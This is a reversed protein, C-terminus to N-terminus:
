RFLSVYGSKVKQQNQGEELCSYQLVWYYVGEPLSRTNRAGDWGNALTESVFVSQGHRDFVELSYRSPPAILRPIFVDNIGDGNPSFVNPVESDCSCIIEDVVFTERFEYCFSQVDVYYTGSSTVEYIRESQLDQWVYSLGEFSPTLILAADDCKELLLIEPVSPEKEFSVTIQDRLICRDKQVRVDYTGPANVALTNGTSLDSWLYSDAGVGADLVLNEGECLVTDAGLDIAPIDIGQITITDNRTCGKLSVSLSYSTAERIERIPKTSGDDWLYTASDLDVAALRLTEGECILSDSAFILTEPFKAKCPEVKVEDIFFYTTQFLSDLTGSRPVLTTQEDVKFNGIVLFREGGEAVFQGSIEIWDDINTLINGEPNALQPTFTLITDSAITDASLYMGLDDSLYLAYDGVSVMFSLFYTDGAILTDTLQVALYERYNKGAVFIDTSIWTRIGAYGEGSYPTQNGWRNEPVGSYSPSGSCSHCFDSTNRNPSYWPVAWGLLGRGGPCWTYDNFDPNPVLNQAFLQSVGM